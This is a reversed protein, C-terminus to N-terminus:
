RIVMDGLVLLAPLIRGHIEKGINMDTVPEIRFGYNYDYRVTWRRHICSLAVTAQSEDEPQAGGCEAKAWARWSSM